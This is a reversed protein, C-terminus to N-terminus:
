ATLSSIDIQGKDVLENFKRPDKRALSRVEDLSMAGSREQKRAGGDFGSGTAPKVLELLSAADARLEDETNGKLRDILAAPLKSEMAIKLRLNEAQATALDTAAQAAAQAAEDRERQVRQAETENQRELEALRDAAAKLDDYDAFQSKTAAVRSAIIGDLKDQTLTITKPETSGGTAAADTTETTAADTTTTAEDPM